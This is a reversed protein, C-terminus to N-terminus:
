LTTDCKRQHKPGDVLKCTLLYSINLRLVDTHDIETYKGATESCGFVTSIEWTYILPPIVPIRKKITDYFLDDVYLLIPGEVFEGEVIWEPKYSDRYAYLGFDLVWLNEDVLMTEARVSYSNIDDIHQV